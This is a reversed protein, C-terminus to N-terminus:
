DIFVKFVGNDVYHQIQAGNKIMEISQRAYEETVEPLEYKDIWHVKVYGILAYNIFNIIKM